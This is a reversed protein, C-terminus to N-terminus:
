TRNLEEHSYRDTLRFCNRAYENKPVLAYVHQDPPPILHRRLRTKPHSSRMNPARFIRLFRSRGQRPIGPALRLLGRCAKPIQGNVVRGVRLPPVELMQASMLGIVISPWFNLIGSSGLWVRGPRDGKPGVKCIQKQSRKLKGSFFIIERAAIKALM